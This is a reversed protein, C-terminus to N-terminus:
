HYLGLFYHSPNEEYESRVYVIMSQINSVSTSEDIMISLKSKYTVIYHVIENQMQTAIHQIINACSYGSYLVSGCDVGNVAQLNILNKYESFSLGWKTWEDATSFVKLTAAIYNQRRQQYFTQQNSIAKELENNKALEHHKIAKAHM